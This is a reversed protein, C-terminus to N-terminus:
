DGTSCPGSLTSIEMLRSSLESAEGKAELERAMEEATLGRKLSDIESFLWCDQTRALEFVKGDPETGYTLVVPVHPNDRRIEGVLAALRVAGLDTSVFVAGYGDALEASDAKDDTVVVPDVPLSSSRGIAEVIRRARHGAFGVFAVRLRVQSGGTKCEEPAGKL